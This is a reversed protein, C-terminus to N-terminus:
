AAPEVCLSAANDANRGEAFSFLENQKPRRNKGNPNM